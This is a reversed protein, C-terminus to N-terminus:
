RDLQDPKLWVVKLGFIIFLQVSLQSNCELAILRSVLHTQKTLQGSDSTEKLVQDSDLKDNDRKVNACKSPRNDTSVLLLMCVSAHM